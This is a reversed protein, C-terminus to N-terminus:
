RGVVSLSKLGIVDNSEPFAQIEITGNSNNTSLPDKISRPVSGLAAQHLVIDVNDFLNPLKDQDNIDIQFFNYHNM